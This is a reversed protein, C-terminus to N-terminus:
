LQYEEFKITRLILMSKWDAIIKSYKQRIKTSVIDYENADKAIIVCTIDYDGMIQLLDIVNKNGNLYQIFDQIEEQTINHLKIKCDVILKYDLARPNIWAAIKFIIGKEQLVEIRKKASDVSLGIKRALVTLSERGDKQLLLLLQRDKEDMIRSKFAQGQPM